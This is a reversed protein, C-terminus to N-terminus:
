RKMFSRSVSNYCITAYGFENVRSVSGGVKWRFMGVLPCDPDTADVVFVDRVPEFLHLELQM